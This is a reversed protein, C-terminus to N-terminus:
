AACGRSAGSEGDSLAADLRCAAHLAATTDARETRAWAEAEGVLARLEELLVHSPTADRDLCEIRELRELVRRAEDM